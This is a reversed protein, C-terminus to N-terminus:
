PSASPSSPVTPSQLTHSPKVQLQPLIGYQVKLKLIRSVAENVRSMPLRGSKIAKTLADVVNSMTGATWPGEILDDGALIALVAAEGLSYRDSIGKMWLNDTIVVGQYGLEDRLVGQVVKPSLSAPKSPDIASLTVHTVMIM